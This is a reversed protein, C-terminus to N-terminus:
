RLGRCLGGRLIIEDRHVLRIIKRKVLLLHAHEFLERLSQFLAAAPDAEIGGFRGDVGGGPLICLGVVGGCPARQFRCLGCDGAKTQAADPHKQAIPQAADVDVM